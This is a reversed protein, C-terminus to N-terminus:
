TCLFQHLFLLSWQISDGLLHALWANWGFLQGLTAANRTPVGSTSPCMQAREKMHTCHALERHSVVGEKWGKWESAAPGTIIHGGVDDPVATVLWTHDWHKRSRCLAVSNLFSAFVFRRWVCSFWAAYWSLHTCKSGASTGPSETNMLHGGSDAEVTSRRFVCPYDFTRVRRRPGYRMM